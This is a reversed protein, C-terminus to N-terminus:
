TADTPPTPLMDTAQTRGAEIRGRVLATVVETTAAQWPRPVIGFDRGIKGTSLRSNRPRRAPTPYDGTTIPTVAASPGGLSASIAFIERAFSCWTAEGTNVFHYTGGPAAAERAARVAIAGLAEALDAASTPCGRQDDVVRLSPRQVALRLMTKVFNSGHPSVLWATRLIVHRPNGTRVAAEGGLKSAGYVGLPGTPDTEVYFDEKEGDFVYDTSVHILPVGAARTAAALLAPGLANVRWATEVDSEANDVATYAAANIVAGWREAAVAAGVQSRDTLDLEERAPAAASIGVPWALKSLARGVQGSGGVVLIRM